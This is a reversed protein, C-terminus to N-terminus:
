GGSVKQPDQTAEETFAPKQNAAWANDESEWQGIAASAEDRLPRWKGQGPVPFGSDGILLQFPSPLDLHLRMADFSNNQFFANSNNISVLFSLVHYMCIIYLHIFSSFKLVFKLFFFVRKDLNWMLQSFYKVNENDIFGASFLTVAEWRLLM